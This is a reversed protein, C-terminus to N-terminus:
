GLQYVSSTWRQCPRGVRRTPCWDRPKTGGVEIAVRRTLEEASQNVLKTYLQLQRRRLILSLPSVKFRSLIDGDAVRSIFSPPVRAIERLCTCYFADLKRLQDKLLWVSELGYLVRSVVCAQFIELKREAPINAHKWVTALTNFSCRGVGLRRVLETSESNRISIRGGLYIAENASKLPLGDAGFINHRGRVRMLVTKQLNLELGYTRGVATVTDLHAQVKAATSGLLM